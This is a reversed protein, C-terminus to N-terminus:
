TRLKLYSIKIKFFGIFRHMLKCLFNPAKHGDYESSRVYFSIILPLILLLIIGVYMDICINISFLIMIYPILAMCSLIWFDGRVGEINRLQKQNIISNTCYVLFIISYWEVLNLPILQPIFCVM